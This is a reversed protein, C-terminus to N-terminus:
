AAVKSTLHIRLHGAITVPDDHEILAEDFRDFGWENITELAGDPLLGCARAARDFADRVMPNPSTAILALLEAHAPDLGALIMAAPEEGRPGPVGTPPATAAKPGPAPDELFIDSLLSSVAQTELRIRELRSPDIVVRGPARKVDEGTTRGDSAGRTLVPASPGTSGRHLVGYIEETPLGLSNHLRELFRVQAPGAKGAAMVISLAARAYAQREPLPHAALRRLVGQQKPPNRYISQAYATLRVKEPEDLADAAQIEAFTEEITNLSTGCDSAALCAAEIVGRTRLYETRSPDVPAGGSAQFLIVPADVDPTSSARREPEYRRDPEFAIGVRDLVFQLQTLGAQSLRANEPLPIEMLELLHRLSKTPMTAGEAFLAECRGSLAEWTSGASPLDPPLLLAAQTSARAEPHKGVFRSFADIEDTCRAVLERLEPPPAAIAAIDPLRGKNPGLLDVEFTSSAAQYSAKIRKRPVGIRLGEPYRAAYRLRWLAEFEEPCRTVPTRFGREPLAALWLLADDADFSWGDALRRGLHARVDLPVQYSYYDPVLNPRLRPGIGPVVIRAAEIFRRAHSEFSHNIGYIGRLREVEAVLAPGDDACGERFLRYELGYFYLFVFAINASPDSRETALWELYARRGAPNLGNYRCHYTLGSPVGRGAKAVPLSPNILCNEIRWSEPGLKEGVYIMGGTVTLDLIEVGEGPLVWRATQGKRDREVAVRRAITGTEEVLASITFAPEAHLEGIEAEPRQTPMSGSGEAPAPLVPEAVTSSHAHPAARASRDDPHRLIMWGVILATTGAALAPWGMQLSRVAAATLVAILGLLLLGSLKRRFRGKRRAM